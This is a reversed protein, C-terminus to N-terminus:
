RLDEKISFPTCRRSCEWFSSPVQSREEGADAAPKASAHLIHEIM